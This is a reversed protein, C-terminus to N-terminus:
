DDHLIRRVDEMVEEENALDTDDMVTERDVSLMGDPKIKLNGGIKVAGLTSETAIPLVDGGGGGGGKTVFVMLLANIPGQPKAKAYLNVSGDEVGAAASLGCLSAEEQSEPMIIIQVPTNERVNENIINLSYRYVGDSAQWGAVPIVINDRLTGIGTVADHLWDITHEHDDYATTALKKVKMTVSGDEITDGTNLGSYDVITAATTGANQTEIVLGNKLTPANLMEGVGYSTQRTCTHTVRHLLDVDVLGTVDIQAMVTTANAVKVRMVYTISTGIEAGAPIWDPQDDLAILYLIEGEDPDQAFVGWERCWFGHAVNNVLLNGTIICDEGTVEASCIGISVEPSTLDILTDVDASTEHGSGLKMRTLNLPVGAEVKAQLRRGAATLAYGTANWNAM